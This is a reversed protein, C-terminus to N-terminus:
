APQRVARVSGALAESTPQTYFATGLALL